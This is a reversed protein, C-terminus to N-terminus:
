EQLFINMVDLSDLTRRPPKPYEPDRPLVIISQILHIYTERITETEHFTLHKRLEKWAEDLAELALADGFLSRAILSDLQRIEREYKPFRSALRRQSAPSSNGAAPNGIQSSRLPKRSEVHTVIESQFREHSFDGRLFQIDEPKSCEDSKVSSSFNEKHSAQDDRTFIKGWQDDISEIGDSDWLDLLSKGVQNLMNWDATGHQTEFSCPKLHDAM